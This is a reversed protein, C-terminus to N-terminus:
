INEIDDISPPQKKVPLDETHTMQTKSSIQTRWDLAGQVGLYVLAMMLWDAGELYDFYVMHTAIAFVIFKRSNAKNMFTKINSCLTNIIEKIEKWM